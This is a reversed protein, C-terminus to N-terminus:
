ALKIKNHVVSSINLIEFKKELCKLVMGDFLKITCGYQSPKQAVDHTYFILWGGNKDLFELLGLYQKFPYKAYLPFSKLALLDILSKNIGKNIIRASNYHKGVEKKAFPKIEGMPFAFSSLQLRFQHKAYTRNKECDIAIKKISSIACNLHSFRHCGIEHKKNKLVEIADKEVIKGSASDKGALDFSAYFTGRVNNSELISAGNEAASEPFDDFTFSVIKEKASLHGTQKYLHMSTLKYAKTIIGIIINNM